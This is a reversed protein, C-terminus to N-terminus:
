AVGSLTLWGSATSILTPSMETASQLRITLSLAITVISLRYSVVMVSEFPVMSSVRRGGSGWSWSQPVHQWRAFIISSITLIEKAYSVTLQTINGKALNSQGM